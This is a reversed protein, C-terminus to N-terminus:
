HLHCHVCGSRTRNVYFVCHNLPPSRDNVFIIGASFIIAKGADGSILPQLMRTRDALCLQANRMNAIFRSVFQWGATHTFDVELIAM